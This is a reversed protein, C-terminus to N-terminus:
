YKVGDAYKGLIERKMGMHITIFANVQETTVDRFQERLISLKISADHYRKMKWEADRIAYEYAGQIGTLGDECGGCIPDYDVWQYTGHECYAPRFGDRRYSECEELYEAYQAKRDRLIALALKGTAKNM